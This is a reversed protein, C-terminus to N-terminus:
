RFPRGTARPYVPADGVFRVPRQYEWVLGDGFAIEYVGNCARWSSCVVFPPLSPPPPLSSSDSRSNDDDNRGPSLVSSSSDDKEMKSSRLKICGRVSFVACGLAFVIGVICGFKMYWKSRKFWDVVDFFLRLSRPLSEAKKLAVFGQGSPLFGLSAGDFLQASDYCSFVTKDFREFHKELVTRGDQDIEVALCQFFPFRFGIGPIKWNRLDRFHWFREILRVWQKDVNNRHQTIMIIDTYLKRSQTLWNLLGRNAMAWDRSNHYLHIEDLVVLTNQGPSGGRVVEHLRAIDEPTLYHFQDPWALELGNYNRVWDKCADEVLRINSYIRGGRALYRLCWAVAHYSKGGGLVGEYCSIM